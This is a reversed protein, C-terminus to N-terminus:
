SSLRDSGAVKVIKNYVGLLLFTPAWNGFGYFGMTQLTQFLVLMVTRWLYPPRWLEAFSRPEAHIQSGTSGVPSVTRSVPLASFSEAELGGVVAEAELMRGRSVLWRPSEPLRRRFWWTLLAGSAGILMLWRWGAM